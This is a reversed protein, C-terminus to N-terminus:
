LAFNTWILMSVQEADEVSLNGKKM